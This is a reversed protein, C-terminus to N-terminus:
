AMVDEVTLSHKKMLAVVARLNKERLRREQALERQRQVLEANLARTFQRAIKIDEQKAKKAQGRLAALLWGNLKAIEVRDAADIKAMKLEKNQQPV